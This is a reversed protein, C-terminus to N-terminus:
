ISHKKDNDRQYERNRKSHDKTDIATSSQTIRGAVEELLSHTKAPYLIAATRNAATLVSQVM